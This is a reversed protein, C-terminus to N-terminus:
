EKRIREKIAAPARVIQETSLRAATKASDVSPVDSSVAVVFLAAVLLSACVRESASRNFEFRAFALCSRNSARSSVRSDFCRRTVFVFGAGSCM